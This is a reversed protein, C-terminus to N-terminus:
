EYIPSANGPAELLKGIASKAFRVFAAIRNRRNELHVADLGLYAAQAMHLVPRHEVPLRELAWAGARDKSALRGTAATYWIRALTLVVNTEDGEWDPASNWNAITAALANIVDGQPVPAFTTDATPGRLAVSRQRASTLLIALDHDLVPPEFIGALLDQRLWEGFQLERRAPYRWPVVDSSVLVTV